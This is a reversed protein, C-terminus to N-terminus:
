PQLHTPGMRGSPEGLSALAEQQLLTDGRHRHGLHSQEQDTWVSEQGLGAWGEGDLWSRVRYQGGKVRKYYHGTAVTIVM